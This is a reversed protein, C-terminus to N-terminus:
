RVRIVGEVIGAFDIARKYQLRWQLANSITLYGLEPPKELLEQAIESAQIEDVPLLREYMFAILDDENGDNELIKRIGSTMQYDGTRKKEVFITHLINLRSAQSQPDDTKQYVFVLLSYGLGFIKQRPSKYPSSSQPQKISTVKM